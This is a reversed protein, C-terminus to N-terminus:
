SPPMMDFCFQTHVVSNEEDESRAPKFGLQELLEGLIIELFQPQQGCALKILIGLGKPYLYCPAIGVGLLGDAGEKALITIVTDKVIDGGLLRTDLRGTGGVLIPRKLMLSKVDPLQQLAPRLNMPVDANKNIAESRALLCYLRAMEEPSLALNPMGCADISEFFFGREKNLLWRVLEKLQEYHGLDKNLYDSLPMQQAKQSMLMALHKGSCPHYISRPRDRLAKLNFTREVSMPFVKPCRLMSENIDGILLIERLTNIHVAEGNHSALMMVLHKSMLRPYAKNLTPLHCALQWPKLLSRSWLPSQTDGMSLLAEGEGSWVSLIGHVTVEPLGSREITLLPEWPLTM